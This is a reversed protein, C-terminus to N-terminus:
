KFESANENCIVKMLKCHNKLFHVSFSCTKMTPYKSVFKVTLIKFLIISKSVGLKKVMDIFNKMRKSKKLYRAKSTRFGYYTSNGVELVQKWIVLRTDPKM